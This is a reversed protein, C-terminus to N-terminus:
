LARLSPQHKRKKREREKKEAGIESTARDIRVLNVLNKCM